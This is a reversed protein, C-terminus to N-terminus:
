RPLRRRGLLLLLLGIGGLVVSLPAMLLPVALREWVEPSLRAEVSQQFGALSAEGVAFWAEGFSTMVLASSAMSRTGDVVLAVFGGALLWVGLFRLLFRIM